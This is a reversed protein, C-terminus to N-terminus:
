IEIQKLELNNNQVEPAEKVEHIYTEAYIKGNGLVKNNYEVYQKGDSDTQLDEFFSGTIVKGMRIQEIKRNTDEFNKVKDDRYKKLEDYLTQTNDKNYSGDVIERINIGLSKNLDKELDLFVDRLIIKVKSIRTTKPEYDYYDKISGKINKVGDIDFNLVRYSAELNKSSYGRPSYTGSDNIFAVKKIWDQTEVSYDKLYDGVVNNDDKKLTDIVQKLVYTKLKAVENDVYLKSFDVFSNNQKAETRTVMPINEMVVEIVNGNSSFSVNNEFLYNKFEKAKINSDFVLPMTKFRYEGDQVLNYNKYRHTILVDDLEEPKESVNKLDLYGDSRVLAGINLKTGINYKMKNLDILDASKTEIFKIQENTNINDNKVSKTIKKYNQKILSMDLKLDLEAAKNILQTVSIGDSISKDITNPERLDRNNILSKAYETAEGVESSTFANALKRYLNLDKINHEVLDLAKDRQNISYYAAVMAYILDNSDDQEIPKLGDNKDLTLKDEFEKDQVNIDIKGNSLINSESNSTKFIISEGLGLTRITPAGNSIIVVDVDQNDQNLIEITGLSYGKNQEIKEIYSNFYDNIDKNHFYQGQPSIEAMKKLMDADYYRGYGITNFSLCNPNSVVREVSKFVNEKSEENVGGDTFFSIAANSCLSKYKDIMSNSLDIVESYMTAGIPTSNNKLLKSLYDLEGETKTVRHGEIVVGNEGKGSYWLVTLFDGEDMGDITGQINKVLDDLDNIMSYSRDYTQIFHIPLNDNKDKNAKKVSYSAFDGLKTNQLISKSTKISM